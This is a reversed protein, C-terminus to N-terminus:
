VHFDVAICFMATTNLFTERKFNTRPIPYPGGIRGVTNLERETCVFLVPHTFCYCAPLTSFFTQKKQTDESLGATTCNCLQKGASEAAFVTKTRKDSCACSQYCGLKNV